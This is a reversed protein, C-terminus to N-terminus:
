RTGAEKLQKRLAAAFTAREDAPLEALMLVIEATLEDQAVLFAMPVGLAAALEGLGDLDIGRAQTEYRNIRTSALRKDLGLLAGLARQSPVGRVERAQKLRAAFLSRASPPAKPVSFWQCIPSLSCPPEM